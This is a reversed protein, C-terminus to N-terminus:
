CVSSGKNNCFDLCQLKEIGKMNSCKGFKTDQCDSCVINCYPENVKIKQFIISSLIIIVVLSIFTIIELKDM